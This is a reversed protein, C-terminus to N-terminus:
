TGVDFADIAALSGGSDPHKTGTRVTRITHQGPALGTTEWVVEQFETTPSYLDFTGLVTNLDDIRVDMIGNNLGKFSVLRIGTGTFTLQLYADVAQTFLLSGDSFGLDSSTSWTGSRVVAADHSEIRTWTLEPVSLDPSTGGVVTLTGGIVSVSM